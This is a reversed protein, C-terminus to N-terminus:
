RKGEDTSRRLRRSLAKALASRGPEDDPRLLLATVEPDFQPARATLKRVQAAAEDIREWHHDLGLVAFWNGPVYGRVTEEPDRALAMLARAEDLLAEADEALAMGACLEAAECWPLVANVQTGEAADLANRVLDAAGSFDGVDRRRRAEALMTLPGDEVPDVGLILGGRVIESRALFSALCSGAEELVIGLYEHHPAREAGDPVKDLEERVRAMQHARELGLATEAAEEDGRVALITLCSRHDRALQDIEWRVGDTEIAPM